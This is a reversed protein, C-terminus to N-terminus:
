PCLGSSLTATSRIGATRESDVCFHDGRNLPVILGYTDNASGTACTATGPSLADIEDILEQFADNDTNASDDCLDAYSNSGSPSRRYLEAEVSAETMRAELARDKGSERFASIGFAVVTSLIGMIAAVTLLEVFTIGRQANTSSTTSSM